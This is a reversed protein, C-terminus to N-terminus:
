RKMVESKSPHQHQIIHLEVDRLRDEHLQLRQRLLELDKEAEGCRDKLNDTIIQEREVLGNVKETLKEIGLATEHAKNGIWALLLVMITFAATQLHREFRGALRRDAGSDDLGQREGM